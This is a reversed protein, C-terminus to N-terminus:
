CVLLKVGPMKGAVRANMLGDPREYRFLEIEQAIAEAANRAKITTSNDAIAARSRATKHVRLRAQYKRIWKRVKASTTLGGISFRIASIANLTM